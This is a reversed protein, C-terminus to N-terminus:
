KLIKQSSSRGGQNIHIIYAGKQLFNTDLEIKKAPDYERQFVLKGSMDFLKVEIIENNKSPIEIWCKDSVPNPFIRAIMKEESIGTWYPQFINAHKERLTDTSLKLLALSALNDGVPDRAWVIATEIEQTAGPLLDYNGGITTVTRRDGPVDSETWNPRGLPDTNGPFAFYAQDAGGRGTATGYSLITGDSWLGKMYRALEFANSPDSNIGPTGQNTFFMYSSPYIAAFQATKMTKLITLGISPPRNGYGTSGDTADANYTYYLDRRKNFNGISLDCGVYDDDAGGIDGDVFFGVKFDYITNMAKNMIKYRYMTSNNVVESQNTKYAFATVQIELGMPLGGPYATHTNGVDNMVWWIMQAPINSTETPDYAPYDGGLPSYIGDSNADYFPAVGGPWDLVTQSRIGSKKARSIEEGTISFMRDWYKCTSSDVTGSNGLPGPWFDFGRQRYTQGATYLNSGNDTGSIWLAGGSLSGLGSGKPIEYGTNSTNSWWMDGGNYLKARVNNVDLTAQATPPACIGVSVNKAHSKNQFMLIFLAFLIVRKM